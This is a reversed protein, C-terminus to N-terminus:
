GLMLDLLAMRVSVGNKVQRFYAAQPLEDVEPPLEDRRVMPHLIILDPKAQQVLKRDIVYYRKKLQEVTQPDPIRHHQLMVTYLVDAEGLVSQIDPTELYTLGQDEFKKLLAEPARLESPSVLFVDAKFKALGKLLSHITRAHKLDGVVAIKLGDIRGKEKQITYLDLLAQTPHEDCGNGANIIPVPSYRCALEVAEETSHRLVILDAYAGLVRLTDELTEGKSLSLDHIEPLKLVQGGLRLMAVEFSLRTRTSPEFFLPALVRNSFKERPLPFLNTELDQARRFIVEVDERRLQDMSVLHSATFSFPKM